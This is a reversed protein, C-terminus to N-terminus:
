LLRPREDDLAKLIASFLTSGELEELALSSKIRWNPYSDVTGPLNTPETEGTLDALRVAVLMSASRAIFRHAAVALSEPFDSDPDAEARDIAERDEEGLMQLEHLQRLLAARSGRRDRFQHDAAERDILGHERRLEVDDGRWWGALTPLDHTSLCAMALRPYDQPPLFGHEGQEFYLIRYSLIGAQHMAPRFGEPVNGLDEGIVIAQRQRSQECVTRVMDAFPYRVYAGDAAHEGRPIFFLQWLGMVHDIRLAGAHRMAASIMARYPLLQERRLASPSLPSLGWNQGEATFFDPPAGISMEPICLTRESWTASGDPAEGVAFDLYLGIRLGAARAADAAQALQQSAIWQLWCHFDVEDGLEAAVRTAEQGEVDQYEAPWGEWGSGHGQLVMEGSIVEFLAHRRLPVGGADRFLFFDEKRYGDPDEGGQKWADFARRLAALKVATVAVYDVRRAARLHALKDEDVGSTDAFPLRDVAIYLPNLFRRNSPSFPSCRSPDALFLAHLPNTGVFDAGARGAIACFEALDAFDGIGWNRRSRIEYLQLSIGWGKGEELWEPVFCREGEPVQLAPPEVGAAAELSARVAEDSDVDLGFATLIRKKTAEPVSRLHGDPGHFGLAIGYREALEDLPTRDVRGEM